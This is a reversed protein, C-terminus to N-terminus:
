QVLNDLPYGKSLRGEEMHAARYIDSIKVPFRERPTGVKLVLALAWLHYVKKQLQADGVCNPEMTHKDPVTKSAKQCWAFIYRSFPRDNGGERWCRTLLSLLVKLARGSVTECAVGM